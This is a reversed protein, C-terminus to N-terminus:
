AERWTGNVFLQKKKIKSRKENWLFKYFEEDLKVIFDMPPDPLSLLLHVIKSLVLTKLVTVKGFPTIERKKWQTLIKKMQFLKDEYNLEVITRINTSFKIGLIKFIGPDWLFNRDRMYRINCNKMSGIWVIQTKDTNIKLGSVEAFRSLVGMAEVFSRESGDLCLTTDDAFQSLLSTKDKIKIGKIFMNKRIMLSLIEACILYLYPSSPDGQRVGREIPFWQSYQGNVSVCTTIDCYFVEVWRIFESGLNFFNLSKKLFSWSVSDFAKEFDVLLLMGPINKKETFVLTDYILRINQGIYRGKLFGTQSKDIIKPLVHKLRNAICSSVIKYTINLLSIPRWNKIYRKAKDEKPICTITGQRQTVSLKGTKFGENISRVYFSGIDIFFFKFFEATYGDPGPSKSNKMQKLAVAAEQFTILGALIENEDDTLKRTDNLEATVEADSVDRHSYLEQYFHQVEKLIEKQDSLIQGDEKELFPMAKDSYHRNELNCFYKNVKEGENRWRIKSRVAIGAIRQERIEQLQSKAEELEEVKEGVLDAELNEIKEELDKERQCDQKKKQSGYCITQGRIQMLLTEFFLQDGIVFSLDENPINEINEFNYVPLAYQKKVETIVKKIEAIYMKDKLLSNNFKWFPRDRTFQEKELSLTVLSHDSRYGPTINVNKTISIMTESVLFYDLRAQKYSNFKRWTYARKDPYMDRFADVFNHEVMFDLLKNRTRPRNVTSSYNRVDIKMDLVCNWDGALVVCENNYQDILGFIREFFEPKDGSSPGYLNVLTIDKKLIEIYINMVIFCGQPDRYVNTMKYEFNNKFLIAVGNKNSERGSLWVNYGWSSRIYNELETKLHTEQLFIINSDKERLFEFVDKRKVSDKLGNCNFTCIKFHESKVM